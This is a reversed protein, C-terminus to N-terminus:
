IPVDFERKGDYYGDYINHAVEAINAVPRIDDLLEEM